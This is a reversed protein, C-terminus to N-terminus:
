EALAADVWGAHAVRTCPQQATRQLLEPPVWHPALEHMPQLVFAREHWRPHPLTLAASQVSAQGYFLLDLDLCRPAHRYPRQRGAVQELGVLTQWLAPATLTVDLALVANFYDPGQAQWPASAYLGSVQSRTCDPLASLQQVAWAMTARADGLNAGLGVYATVPARAAM